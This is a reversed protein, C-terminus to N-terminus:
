KFRKKLIVFQNLCAVTRLVSLVLLFLVVSNSTYLGLFM